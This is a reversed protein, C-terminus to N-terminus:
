GRARLIHGFEMKPETAPRHRGHRGAPKGDALHPRDGDDLGSPLNLDIEGAVFQRDVRPRAVRDVAQGNRRLPLRQDALEFVEQTQHVPADVSMGFAPTEEVGM